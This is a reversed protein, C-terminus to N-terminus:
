EEKLDEPDTPHNIRRFKSRDRVLEESPRKM